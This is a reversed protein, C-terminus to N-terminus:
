HFAARVTVQKSFARQVYGNYRCFEKPLDIFVSTPPRLGAPFANIAARTFSEDSRIEPLWGRLSMTLSPPQADCVPLSMHLSAATDSRRNRGIKASVADRTLKAVYTRVNENNRDTPLAKKM